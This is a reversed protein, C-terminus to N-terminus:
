DLKNQALRVIESLEEEDLARDTGKLHERIAAVRQSGPPHHADGATTLLFALGPKRDFGAKEVLDIATFDAEFENIRANAQFSEELSSIGADLSEAARINGAKEFAQYAETMVEWLVGTGSPEWSVDGNLIHGTEHAMAFALLDDSAFVQSAVPLNMWVEDGSASAPSDTKNILFEVKHDDSVASLKKAVAMQRLKEEEVFGKPLQAMLSHDDAPRPVRPVPSSDSSWSSKLLAASIVVPLAGSMGQGSLEEIKVALRLAAEPSVRTRNQSLEVRDEEVAPLHITGNKVETELFRRVFRPKNVQQISNVGM